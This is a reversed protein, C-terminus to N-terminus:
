GHTVSEILVAGASLAFPLSLWFAVTPFFFWLAAYPIALNVSLCWVCVIVGTAWTTPWETPKGDDDHRIGATERLKLFVNAPGREYSLLASVRWLAFVAVVMELVSM